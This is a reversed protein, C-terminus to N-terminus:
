QTIARILAIGGAILAAGVLILLIGACFCDSFLGAIGVIVFIAGGIVCLGGFIVGLVSGASLPGESAALEDARVGHGLWHAHAREIESRPPAEGANFDGGSVRAAHQEVKAVGDCLEGVLLDTSQHNLRFSLQRMANKLRRGSREPVGSARIEADIWGIMEPLAVGPRGPRAVSGASVLDRMAQLATGMDAASAAIMRQIGPYVQAHMPLETFVAYGYMARLAKGIAARGADDHLNPFANALRDEIRAMGARVDGLLTEARLVTWPADGAEADAPLAIAVAGGGALGLFQRREM